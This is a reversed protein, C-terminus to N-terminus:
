PRRSRGSAFFAELAARHEPRVKRLAASTRRIRQRRAIAAYTAACAGMLSPDESAVRALAPVLSADGVRAAAELVQSLVGPPRLVVLERLDHLAVRSDLRALAVHLGARAALRSAEDLEPAVARDLRALARSLAPISAATGVEALVRALSQIVEPDRAAGLGEHLRDLPPEADRRLTDVIEAAERANVGGSVLREVPDAPTEFRAHPRGHERALAAGRAAVERVPSTALRRGLPRWTSPPLPPELRLIEDLISLRLGVPAQDDVVADVLPALAEVVGARHLRALGRTAAERRRPTGGALLRALTPVSRADGREAMAEIAKLAVRPSPDGTLAALASRARPDGLRELVELAALRAPVRAGPLSTVLPEIVRPGELTLQAVASDRDAPRPSALRLILAHVRGARSPVIPM